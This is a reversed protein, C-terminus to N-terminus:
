IKVPPKVYFNLALRLLILMIICIFAGNRLARFLNIEKEKEETAKNLFKAPDEINASNEKFAKALALQRPMDSQSLIKDLENNLGAKGGVEYAVSLKDYFFLEVAFYSLRRIAYINAFLFFLFLLVAIATSLKRKTSINM